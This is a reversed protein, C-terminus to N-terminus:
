IPKVGIRGSFTPTQTAKPQLAREPSYTRYGPVPKEASAGSYVGWKIPRFGFKPAERHGFGFASTIGFLAKKEEICAFMLASQTIM